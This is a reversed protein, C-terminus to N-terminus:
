VMGDARGRYCRLLEGGSLIRRLCTLAHRHDMGCVTCPNRSRTIVSHTWDHVAQGSGRFVPGIRLGERHVAPGDGGADGASRSTRAATLNDPLKLHADARSARRRAVYRFVVAGRQNGKEEARAAFAEYRCNAFTERAFARLPKAAIRNVPILAM